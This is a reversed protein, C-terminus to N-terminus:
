SRIQFEIDRKLKRLESLFDIVKDFKLDQNDSKSICLYTYDDEGEFSSWVISHKNFMDIYFQDIEGIWQIEFSNFLENVKSM